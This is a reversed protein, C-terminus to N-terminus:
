FQKINASIFRYRISEVNGILILNFVIAKSHLDRYVRPFKLM